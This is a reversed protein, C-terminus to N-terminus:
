RERREDFGFIECSEIGKQVEEEVVVVVVVVLLREKRSSSDSNSPESV